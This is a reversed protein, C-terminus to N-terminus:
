SARAAQAATASPPALRSALSPSPTPPTLARSPHPRSALHCLGLQDATGALVRLARLARPARSTQPPRPSTAACANSHGRRNLNAWGTFRLDLAAADPHLLALYELVADRVQRPDLCSTLAFNPRPRPRPLIPANRPAASAPPTAQERLPGLPEAEMLLDPESQWGGSNSFAVGASRRAHALVFKRAAARARGGDRRRRTYVPTGHLRLASPAVALARGADVAEAAARGAEVEEMGAEDEEEAEAPGFSLELWGAVGAPQLNSSPACGARQPPCTRAAFAM